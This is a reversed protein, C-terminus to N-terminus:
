LRSSISDITNIQNVILPFRMKNNTFLQDSFLFTLLMDNSIMPRRFVVMFEVGNFGGYAIRESMIPQLTDNGAVLAFVGDKLGIDKPIKHGPERDTVRVRFTMEKSAAPSEAGVLKRWHMPLYTLRIDFGAVNKEQVLNKVPDTMIITMNKRASYGCGALLWVGIIYRQIKM